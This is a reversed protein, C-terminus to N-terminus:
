TLSLSGLTRRRRELQVRSAECVASSRRTRIWAQLRKPNQARRGGLDGGCRLTRAGLARALRPRLAAHGPLAYRGGHVHVGAECDSPPALHADGARLPPILSRRINLIGSRSTRLARPLPLRRALAAAALLLHPPALVTFRRAARSSKWVVGGGGGRRTSSPWSPATSGRLWSAM